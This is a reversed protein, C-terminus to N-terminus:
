GPDASPEEQASAFVEVLHAVWAELSYQEFDDPPSGLEPQQSIFERITSVDILAPDRPVILMRSRSYFPQERISENATILAAGTALVEFTRMTLGTQGNRQLDIVARSRQAVIAVESRSLPSFSVEDISVPRVERSLLKRALFFWRAPMFYYLLRNEQPVASAIAQTFAYRDGHLTGIFSIDLDRKEGSPHYGSAYFLPKFEFEPNSAVDAPDFSFRRHFRSLLRQGQPSNELSDYTYYVMTAGPSRRVIEDLFSAPVVEGKIVLVGDIPEHGLRALAHKYHRDIKRQLLSPFVRVIARALPSNSPREDLFTTDHGEARFADVIAEEYGFFSPSIVLIRM